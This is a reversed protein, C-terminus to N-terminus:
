GEPRYASIRTYAERPDVGLARRSLVVLRPGADIELTRSTVGFRVREDVRIDEVDAWGMRARLVPTRLTLGAVEVTIRPWFVLDTISYAALLLAAGVLLLRGEPDSTVLAYAGVLIAGALAGGALRRDPGFRVLTKDV